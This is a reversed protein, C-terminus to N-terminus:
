KEVSILKVSTEFKYIGSGAQIHVKGAEETVAHIGNLTDSLAQGNCLILSKDNTPLIIEATTGVPVQIDFVGQDENLTWDSQLQGRVTNVGAKAYTLSENLAPEITVTKYGDQMDKIGGIGKYFWEDYTGLFYHGLSRSTTEWMEWLSTGRDAMFGWSPYSKQQAVKYAVDAYGNDTLVPLIFKSGVCGTDLHYNKDKIDNVLNTLVGDKYEEPVLGYALPVLQSTQRYRSRNQQQSWTLTRYIQNEADYFKENFAKYM